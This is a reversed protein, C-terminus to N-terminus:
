PTLEILLNVYVFLFSSAVIIRSLVFGLVIIYVNIKKLNDSRMFGSGLMSIFGLCFVVLLIILNNKYLILFPLIASSIIFCITTQKLYGLVIIKPQHFMASISFYIFYLCLVIVLKQISALYKYKINLKSIIFYSINIILFGCLFYGIQLCRSKQLKNYSFYKLIEKM